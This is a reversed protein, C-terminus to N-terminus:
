AEKPPLAARVGLALGQGCVQGVVDNWLRRLEEADALKTRAGMALTRLTYGDLDVPPRAFPRPQGDAPRCPFFSFMGDVPREVTAGFYLRHWCDPGPNWGYMPDLTTARFTPNTATTLAERDSGSNHDRCDAVVFVTDLVFRGGRKSGYLILSGTGLQRLRRIKGQKCFTYLFRHGFVSPDTNQPVEDKPIAPRGLFPRHLWRPDDPSEPSLDSVHSSAEWEGWFVVDGSRPRGDPADTWSGASLMFKRKHPLSAERWLKLNPGEDPGHEAGPHPFQVFWASGSV